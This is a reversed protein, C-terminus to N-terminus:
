RRVKFFDRLLTAAETEGLASYVQPVHHCTPQAFFRV